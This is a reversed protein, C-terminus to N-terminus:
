GGCGPDGPGAQGEGAVGSWRWPDVALRFGMLASPSTPALGQQYGCASQHVGGMWSGGRAACFIGSVNDMRNLCWTLAGGCLDRIGYPSEDAPFSGVPLLVAGGPRSVLTHGFNGDYHNGYSWARGDVGRASKEYEEEHLLRYVRGERRSLWAAYALADFWNVGVVPCEPRIAFGGPPAHPPCRFAPGAVEELYRRDGERPQRARAEDARGSAALDDLYAIYDRMTVPFRAVFLDRTSSPVADQGGANRGGFIFPGGPVCVFGDPIVRAPHLNVEQSWSGARDIRVPVVVPDRGPARLVCRWSGQPLEVGALPTVGLLRETGAVLRRGREECPAAWVEVGTVERRSCDARHGFRAGAPRVDLAPIRWQVGATPAGAGGRDWPVMREGDFEAAWGPVKVPALCDCGFEFTRLSLRGPAGLRARFEGTRDAAALLSRQLLEDERDERSEAELVRDYLLECQAREADECGPDAALAALLEAGTEAICRIREERLADLGAEADWLPKKEAIARHEPIEARLRDLEKRKMEIQGRLERFRELKARGRRVHEAAERRAREREQVGELFLQVDQHLELASAYRRLRDKAMAKAVIADLEPPVPEPVRAGQLSAVLVSPPPIPGPPDKPAVPSRWTLLAYLLAGLAYVDSRADLEDIRGQAQEPSMYAPTGLVDGLMTLQTTDAAGEAPGAPGGGSIEPEGIVKALGWDVILTEGFDGIMVNSPKLDRHLVGKSHAYAIGLCVDQFVRLLRLRSYKGGAASDGATMAFLIMGLDVGRVRKMCLFLEKKGGPAPREGFDHVPVINPHELRATVRAERVFREVARPEAGGLVLKIAVERELDGDFAEVVRGLGGRAIEPGLRYREDRPLPAFSGRSPPHPSAAILFECVESPPNLALLADRLEPAVALPLGNEVAGNAAALGPDDLSRTIRLLDQLSRPVFGPIGRAGELDQFWEGACALLRDRGLLGKQCAALAVQLELARNM